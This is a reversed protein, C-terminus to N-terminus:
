LLRVASALTEELMNRQFSLMDAVHPFRADTRTTTLRYRPGDAALFGLRVLVTLSERVVADPNRALEPDVFLNSPLAALQGRVHHQASAAEFPGDIGCLFTAVMASTTVARAAALSSTLDDVNAPRVIRYLM